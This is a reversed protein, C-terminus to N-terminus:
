SSFFVNVLNEGISMSAATPNRGFAFRHQIAEQDVKATETKKAAPKKKKKEQQPTAPSIKDM